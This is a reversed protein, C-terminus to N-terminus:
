DHSAWEDPWPASGSVYDGILHRVRQPTPAACTIRSTAIVDESLLPVGDYPLEAAYRTAPPRSPLAALQVQDFVRVGTAMAVLRLTGSVRPNVEIVSLAGGSAIFEVEAFGWVDLLEAVRTGMRALESALDRWSSPLPCVRLRRWPPLLDTRTEGKWVPPFVVIRQDERHLVVSFEVGDVYTEWYRDDGPGATTHAWTLGQSQTGSRRKVLVPSAVQRPPAGRGWSPTPVGSDELLRKVMVKDTAAATARASQCRVAVGADRLQAALRRDRLLTEHSSLFDVTADGAELVLRAVDVAPRAPDEGLFIMRGASGAFAPYWSLLSAPSVAALRTLGM